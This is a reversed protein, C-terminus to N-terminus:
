DNRFDYKIKLINGPITSKRVILKKVKIPNLNNYHCSLLTKLYFYIFHKGMTRFIITVIFIM